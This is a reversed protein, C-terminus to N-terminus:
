FLKVNDNHLFPKFANVTAQHKEEYPVYDLNRSSM